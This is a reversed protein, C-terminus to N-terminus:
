APPKKSEFRRSHTGSIMLTALWDFVTRKPKSVRHGAALVLQSARESPQALTGSRGGLTKRTVTGRHTKPRPEPPKRPEFVALREAIRIPSTLPVCQKLDVEVM